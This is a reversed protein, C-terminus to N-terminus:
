CCVFCARWESLPNRQEWPGWKYLLLYTSDWDKMLFYGHPGVASRTLCTRQLFFSTDLRSFDHPKLTMPNQEKRGKDPMSSCRSQGPSANLAVYSQCKLVWDLTPQCSLTLFRFPVHCHLKPHPGLTPGWVRSPFILGPKWSSTIGSGPSPLHTLSSM